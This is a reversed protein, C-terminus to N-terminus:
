EAPLEITDGIKSSYIVNQIHIGLMESRSLGEMHETNKFIFNQNANLVSNLSMMTGNMIHSSELLNDNVDFNNNDKCTLDSM